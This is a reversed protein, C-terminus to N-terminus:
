ELVLKALGDNMIHNPSLLIFFHYHSGLDLCIILVCIHLISSLVIFLTDQPKFFGIAIPVNM